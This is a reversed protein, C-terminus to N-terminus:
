SRQKTTVEEPVKWWRLDFIDIIYNKITSIRARTKCKNIM